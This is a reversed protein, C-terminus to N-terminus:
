VACLSLLDTARGARWRAKVSRPSSFITASVAEVSRVDVCARAAAPLTNDGSSCYTAHSYMNRIVQLRERRNKPHSGMTVFEFGDSDGSHGVISYKFKHDLGSFSEMIMVATACM